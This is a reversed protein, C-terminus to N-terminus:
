VNSDLHDYASSWEEKTRSELMAKLYSKIIAFFHEGVKKPFVESMNHYYDGRLLCTEQIGLSAM